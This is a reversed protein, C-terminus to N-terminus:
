LQGIAELSAVRRAENEDFRQSRLDTLRQARAQSSLRADGLIGARRQVYAALRQDWLARQHDLAALRTAAAQGFLASREEQRQTDGVHLADFQRSQEEAVLATGVDQLLARQQDPLMNELDRLRRARTPADLQTDSAVRRRALTYEAYAEEVGFFAQATDADFFKRRLAKAFALREELDASLGPEAASLARQYEVYRDFVAAVQEAVTSGHLSRVHALLMARIAALDAEGIASLFYDFLRRLAAEPRLKGDATLAVEGDPKSGQLSAPLGPTRQAQATSPAPKRSPASAIHAASAIVADARTTTAASQAVRHPGTIPEPPDARETRLLLAVCLVLGAVIGFLYKM